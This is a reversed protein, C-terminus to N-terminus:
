FCAGASIRNQRKTGFNFGALRHDNNLPRTL